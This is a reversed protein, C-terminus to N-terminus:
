AIEIDTHIFDNGKFVLAQKQIKASAYSFCDGMNLKAKNQRGKGYKDFASIAVVTHRLEIPLIQINAARLFAMVVVESEPLSKGGNRAVALVTEYIVIASTYRRSAKVKALLEARDNEKLLIATLASSDVFM